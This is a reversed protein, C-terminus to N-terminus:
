YQLWSLNCSIVCVCCSLLLVSNIVTIINFNLSYNSVSTLIVRYYYLCLICMANHSHSYIARMSKSCFRSASYLVICVTTGNCSNQCLLMTSGKREQHNKKKNKTKQQTRLMCSCDFNLCSTRHYIEPLYPVPIAKSAMFDTFPNLGAVRLLCM